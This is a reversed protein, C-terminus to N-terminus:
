NWILFNENLLVGRKMLLKMVNTGVKQKNNVKGNRQLQKNVQQLLTLLCYRKYANWKQTTWSFLKNYPSPYLRQTWNVSREFVLASNQLYQKLKKKLGTPKLRKRSYFMQKKRKKYCKNDYYCYNKFINKVRIPRSDSLALGFRQPTPSSKIYAIKELLLRKLSRIKSYYCFKRRFFDKNTHSLNKFKALGLGVRMVTARMVRQFRQSSLRILKKEMKKKAKKYRHLSRKCVRLNYRLRKFRRYLKYRRRLLLQYSYSALLFSLNSIRRYPKGKYYWWRRKRLTSARKPFWIKKEKYVTRIAGAIVLQLEACTLSYFFFFSMLYFTKKLFYYQLFGKLALIFNSSKHKDLKYIYGWMKNTSGLRFASSVQKSAM